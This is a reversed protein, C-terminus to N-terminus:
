HTLITCLEESMDDQKHCPCNPGHQSSKKGDLQARLYAVIFARIASTRNSRPKYDSIWTCLTHLNTHEEECIHDLASWMEPELRFSTRQGSIVVNRSVLSLTM